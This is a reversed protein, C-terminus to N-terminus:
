HSNRGGGFNLTRRDRKVAANSLAKSCTPKQRREPAGAWPRRSYVSLDRVSATPRLTSTLPGRTSRCAADCVFGDHQGQHGRSGGVDRAAAVTGRTASAARLATASQPAVADTGPLAALARWLLGQREATCWSTVGVPAVIAETAVVTGGIAAARTWIADHPELPMMQLHPLAVSRM